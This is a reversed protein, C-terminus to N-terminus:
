QPKAVDLRYVRIPDSTPPSTVSNIPWPVQGAGPLPTFPQTANTAFSVTYVRGTVSTWDFVVAGSPQQVTLRLTLRSAPDSPNLGALYSQWAPAGNVGIADVASEAPGDFGYSALWWLPTPHNTTLLEAFEARVTMNSVLTLSLPNTSATVDGSWRDFRFYNAPTATVQVVIGSAYSASVPSVMGWAPVNVQTTLAVSPTTDVENALLTVASFGEATIEFTASGNAQDVDPLATISVSVGTSWNSADLFNTAAGTLQLDADGGLRTVSVAVPVAPQKSLRITAASSGGEEVSLIVPNVLLTQPDEPIAVAFSGLATQAMFHSFIDSVEGDLVTVTYTGNNTISWVGDPAPISYTASRPSGNPAQDVGLFDAQQAYGNPGTVVIDGVGLTSVDVGSADTYTVTFAHTSSGGVLLNAAGLQALPPSTDLNGGSLLEVDDINWGIDNLSAGSALSWRLRVTPSGYTWSPLSYVVQQWASDTVSSTTNFLNTWAVGNTSVEIRATDGSRLRLWRQFRLTLATENRCDIVPTTAYSIALSNPYNGALNFAVINSGTFGAKPATSATYTPRGYQWQSQFTWGPNTEMSAFYVARPVAVTFQGLTKAVAYGGGTNRVQDPLLSVTYAGNDATSWAMGNPAGISYTAVRPTGNSGINVSVLSASASFGNTSTVLIDSGDISSVDIALLGSYTVNFTRRAFGNQTINTVALEAVPPPVFGSPIVTGSIFYQGVGGYSSYGSPAASLPDGVGVNRIFLYYAGEVLNTQISAGTQDAPNSTLLLTGAGDYLDLAIDVDGGRTIGGPTVWGSVTLDIPGTGAVFAFVDVDTNRELVGKNAPSANTPDTEPTTAVVSGDGGVILQSATGATNGHDDPRYGVKGSIIALDDQSNNSHYYAGKSWQSVNRNYGTGMIPGWSTQGSGHGGYYDLGDTTGDHSLGMNHGIEHSLAEAIYSESNALNNYYIWAPRSTSYTSSGFVNVYAVGGATASPNDLGNVDTNRTVLAQATWRTFTAPRETTVDINFAAYDEAVRQWVRKVALQEADSFTTFDGDTSFTTAPISTRGLSTNWSTGSVTEGAFNIYLVNTSGPRSHFVLSTPFPSVPVLSEVVPVTSGGSPLGEAPPLAFHDEYFIGGSEDARLSVLDLGTFHFRQLRGIANTRANDSLRSLDIRLRSLPIDQMGRVSGPRFERTRLSEPPAPSQAAADAFGVLIWLAVFLAVSQVRPFRGIM